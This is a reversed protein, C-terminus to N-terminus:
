SPRGLRSVDHAQREFWNDRYCRRGRALQWLSSAVYAPIFFPGWTQYQRVHVHEHDRAADLTAADVGLIVHGFTIARFPIRAAPRAIVVGVPGGSFELVGRVIRLRAGLLSMLLGLALGFASNPSAWVYAAIRTV